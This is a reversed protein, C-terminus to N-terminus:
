PKEELKAFVTAATRIAGLRVFVGCRDPMDPDNIAPHAKFPELAPRNLALM